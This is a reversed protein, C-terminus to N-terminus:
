QEEGYKELIEQFRPHDRLPDWRPDLRLDWASWWSPIALLYELQDIAADQEGVMTYVAALAWVAGVGAVADKSVPLLEVAAQAESIAEAKRGLGACARALSGRVRHDKPGEEVLEELLAHAAHYSARADGARGMLRYADGELLERPHLGTGTDGIIAPGAALRDLAAQYTRDYLELTVRAGCYEPQDNKPAGVVAARAQELAGNWSLATLANRAYAVVQNPALSISLDNYRDAEPYQRVFRYTNALESAFYANRPDLELAKELGAIAEDFRGQRRRVWGIGAVILSDNPLRKAALRYEELAQQYDRHGLYHYTGLARHGEPSDPDLELARLAAERAAELREPSRDYWYWYLTSHAESLLGHAAVFAPDHGVAREFMRVALEFSAKAEDPDWLYELGRLYAQYAELSETPRAAIARQEGPLLAVGLQGVVAEAIESQVAFIDDLVRDYGDAWLHTDDAVRILQPNVRVRGAGGAQHDWRVSGELVFGVGFDRGIQEFNKGARDYQVASTRSIVGLGSVRALRSSIEETMGVAFYEDEPPGLNEFPLVVIRPTTTDGEVAPSRPWLVWGLVVAVAIVAMAPVAIWVVNRKRERVRPTPEAASPASAGTISRLAFALDRASQFRSQPRKELCRRVTGALEPPLAEGSASIDTPEEKLIATMTEAATDRVFARQGCAMEYLV